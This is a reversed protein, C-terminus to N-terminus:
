REVPLDVHKSLGALASVSLDEQPDVGRYVARARLGREAAITRAFQTLIREADAGEPVSEVFATKVGPLNKELYKRGQDHSFSWGADGVPGVYIFAVKVPEKAAMGSVPLATILCLATMIVAFLRCASGIRKM